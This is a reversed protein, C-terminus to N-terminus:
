KRSMWWGLFAGIIGGFVANVLIDVIILSTSYLNYQAYFFLDMILTYLFAIVMGTVFGRSATNVSGLHFIYGLLIGYAINAVAIAWLVPETKMLGTYQTMGSTYYDMLLYGFILWGLFFALVGALVGGILSKSSM